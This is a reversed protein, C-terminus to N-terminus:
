HNLIIAVISAMIVFRGFDLKGLQLIWSDNGGSSGNQWFLAVVLVVILLTLLGTVGIGYGRSFWFGKKEPENGNAM